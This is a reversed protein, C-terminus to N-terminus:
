WLARKLVIICVNLAILSPMKSDLRAMGKKLEAICSLIVEIRVLEDGIRSPPSPQPPPPPWFLNKRIAAVLLLGDRDTPTLLLLSILCASLLWKLRSRPWRM